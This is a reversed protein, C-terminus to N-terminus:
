APLTQRGALRHPIWACGARRGVFPRRCDLRYFEEYVPSGAHIGDSLEAPRCQVGRGHLSQIIDNFEKRGLTCFEIDLVAEALCGQANGVADECFAESIGEILTRAYVPRICGIEKELQTSSRKLLGPDHADFLASRFLADRNPIFTSLACPVPPSSFRPRPMFNPAVGAPAIRTTTTLWRDASYSESNKTANACFRACPM